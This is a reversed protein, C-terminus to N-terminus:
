RQRRRGASELTALAGAHEGREGAAEAVAPALAQTLYAVETRNAARLKSLIRCVFAKVTSESIQLRRQSM